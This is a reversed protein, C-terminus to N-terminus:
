TKVNTHGQNSYLVSKQLKASQEVVRLHFLSHTPPQIIASRKNKPSKAKGEEYRGKGGWFFVSFFLSYLIIRWYVM